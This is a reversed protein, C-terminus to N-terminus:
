ARIPKLEGLLESCRAFYFYTFALISDLDRHNAALIRKIMDASLLKAKDCEKIRVLYMLLFGLM